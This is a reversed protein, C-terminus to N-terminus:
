DVTLKTEPLTSQLPELPLPFEGEQVRRMENWGAQELSFGTESLSLM